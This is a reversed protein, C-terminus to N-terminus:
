PPLGQTFVPIPAPPPAEGALLEGAGAQVVQDPMEQDPVEPAPQEAPVMAARLAVQSGFPALIDARAGVWRSVDSTCM